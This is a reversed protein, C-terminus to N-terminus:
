SDLAPTSAGFLDLCGELGSLTIDDRRHREWTERDLRLDIHRVRVGRRLDWTCGNRVYGLAASVGLSSSNDEWAGSYAEIAGLGSFALHLIAARM